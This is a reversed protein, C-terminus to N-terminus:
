CKTLSWSTERSGLIHSLKNCKVVEKRLAYVLEYSPVVPSLIHGFCLLLDTSLPGFGLHGIETSCTDRKLTNGTLTITLATQPTATSGM